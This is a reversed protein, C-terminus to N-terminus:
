QSEERKLGLQEELEEALRIVAWAQPHTTRTDKIQEYVQAQYGMEALMKATNYHLVNTYSYQDATGDLIMDIVAQRNEFNAFWDFVDQFSQKLSKFIADMDTRKFIYWFQTDPHGYVMDPDPNHALNRIQCDYEKFKRNSISPGSEFYIGIDVRFGLRFDKRNWKDRYFQIVKGMGDRSFYRFCQGDKKFGLPKLIEEHVRQLLEKYKDEIPIPSVFEQVKGLLGKSHEM